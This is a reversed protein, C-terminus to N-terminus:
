FFPAEAFASVRSWSAGLLMPCFFRSLPESTGLCRRSACVISYPSLPRNVDPGEGVTGADVVPAPLSRTLPSIM